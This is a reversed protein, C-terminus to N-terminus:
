KKKILDNFMSLQSEISSTEGYLEDGEDFFKLSEVSNPIDDTKLLFRYDSFTLVKVSNPIDGPKFIHEYSALHLKTVSNPIDGVNLQLQIATLELDTVSNPIEGPSLQQTCTINLSTISNPIISRILPSTITLYKISNPLDGQKLQMSYSELNIDTVSIPIDNPKLQKNFRNLKLFLVSHPIDGPKLKRDFDELHLNLVSNPIIGPELKQNFSTLKLKLVSNPIGGPKFKLNNSNYLELSTVSYPIDGANLTTPAAICLKTISNPINNILPQNFCFLYLITVSNPIANSLDFDSKLDMLTLSKVSKPILKRLSTGSPIGSSLKPDDVLIQDSLLKPIFISRPSGSNNSLILESIYSKVEFSTRSFETYTSSFKYYKKFCRVHGYIVNLLYVNRFVMFFSNENDMCIRKRSEVYVEDQHIRKIVKVM